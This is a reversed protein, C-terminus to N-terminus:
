EVLAYTVRTGPLTGPYAVLTTTANGNQEIVWGLLAGAYCQASTGQVIITGAPAYVIGKLTAAETSCNAVPNGHLYVTGTNDRGLFILMGAYPGSTPATGHLKANGGLTLSGSHLYFTGNIITITSSNTGLSGQFYFVSNCEGSRGDFPYSFNPNFGVPYVGPLYVGNVPGTRLPCGTTNPIPLGALPDPVPPANLNPPPVLISNPRSAYRPGVINIAGRARADINGNGVSVANPCPSNVQVVGDVARILGENGTLALSVYGNCATDKLAFLDAGLAKLSYGATATGRVTFQGDWVVAAFVPTVQERIEVQIYQANGAYAGSIPPQHIRISVAPNNNSYGNQAAYYLATSIATARGQHYLVMGAATAAADAASQVRRQRVFVVGVDLVLGLVAILLPLLLAVLVLQQGKQDTMLRKM